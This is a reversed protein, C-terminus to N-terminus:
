LLRYEQGNISGQMMEKVTTATFDVNRKTLNGVATNVSLLIREIKANTEVEEKSKGELRGSRSNWREAKLVSALCSSPIVPCNAHSRNGIRLGSKKEIRRVANIYLLIAKREM